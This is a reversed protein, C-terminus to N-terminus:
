FTLNGNAFQISGGIKQNVTDKRFMQGFFDAAGLDLYTPYNIHFDENDKNPFKKGSDIEELTLISDEVEFFPNKGRNTGAHNYLGRYPGKFTKGPKDIYSGWNDDEISSRGYTGNVEFITNNFGLSPTIMSSRRYAYQPNSTIATYFQGWSYGNNGTRTYENCGVYHWTYLQPSFYDVYECKNIGNIFPPKANFTGSHGMTVVICWPAVRKIRKFCDKFRRLLDLEYALQNDIGSGTSSDSLRELDVVVSNFYKPKSGNELYNKYNGYQIVGTEIDSALKEIKDTTWYCAGGSVSIGFLYDKMKNDEFYKGAKEYLDGCYSNEILNLVVSIYEDETFLFISNTNKPVIDTADKPFRVSISNKPMAFPSRNDDGSSLTFTGSRNADMQYSWMYFGNMEQVPSFYFTNTSEGDLTVIHYNGNIIPKKNKYKMGQRFVFSADVKLFFGRVRRSFAIPMLFLQKKTGYVTIKDRITYNRTAPEILLM